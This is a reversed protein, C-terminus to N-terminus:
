LIISVAGHDRLSENDLVARRYRIKFSGGDRVLKYVYHGFYPGAGGARARYVIFSAEATVEDGEADTVRVNSILRRTRSSPYERHAHRSELRAVRGFLQVPGDDIFVLDKEPDGDPLDTTPVVYRADDTFLQLWDRLRWEDLMAAEEFLFEEVDFRLERRTQTTTM